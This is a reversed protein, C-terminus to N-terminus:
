DPLNVLIKDYLNNAIQEMMVPAVMNGITKAKDNYTGLMVYDDPLGM